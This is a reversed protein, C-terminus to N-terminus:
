DDYQYPERDKLRVVKSNFDTKLYRSRTKNIRKISGSQFQFEKLQLIEAKAIEEKLRVVKSNFNIKWILAGVAVIRKISGSQFQFVILM